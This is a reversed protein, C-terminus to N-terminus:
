PGLYFVEKMDGKQHRSNQPPEYFKLIQAVM